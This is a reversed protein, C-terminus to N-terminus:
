LATLEVEIAIREQNLAYIGDPLHPFKRGSTRLSGSRLARECTWVGAPYTDELFLRVENIAFLHDLKGLTPIYLKYPLNLEQLGRAKLWIWAPDEVTMKKYEVLGARKWRNVVLRTANESIMGPEKAGRGSELGLLTQVQDLRAASQEGIWPLVRRDRDNFQISGKDNCAKRSRTVATVNKQVRGMCTEREMM